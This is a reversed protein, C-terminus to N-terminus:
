IRHRLCKKESCIYKKHRHTLQTFLPIQSEGCQDNNEGSDKRPYFYAKRENRRILFANEGVYGLGRSPGEEETIGPSFLANIYALDKDVARLFVTFHWMKYTIPKYFLGLPLLLLLLFLLWQFKYKM